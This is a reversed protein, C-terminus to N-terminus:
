SSPKVPGRLQAVNSEVQEISAERAASVGGKGEPDALARLLPVLRTAAFAATNPPNLPDPAV